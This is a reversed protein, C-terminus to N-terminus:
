LPLPHNAPSPTFTLDSMPIWRIIVDDPEQCTHWLLELTSPEMENAPLMSLAEEFIFIDNFDKEVEDFFAQQIVKMDHTPILGLYKWTTKDFIAVKPECVASLDTPPEQDFIDPYLIANKQRIQLLRQRYRRHDQWKSIFLIPITVFSVLFWAHVESLIGVGICTVFVIAGVESVVSMSIGARWVGPPRHFYYRRLLLNLIILLGIAGVAWAAVLKM